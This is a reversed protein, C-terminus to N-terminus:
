KFAELSLLQVLQGRDTAKDVGLVKFVAAEVAPEIVSVIKRDVTQEVVRSLGRDM